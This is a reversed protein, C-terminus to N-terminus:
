NNGLDNPEIPAAAGRSWKSGSKVCKGAFHNRSLLMGAAAVLRPVLKRQRAIPQEVFRWGAWGMPLTLAVVLAAYEAALLMPNPNDYGFVVVAVPIALPHYLYFSYSIRGLWRAGPRALIRHLISPRGYAVGAVLWAAAVGEGLMAWHSEYGFICRSILLIVIAITNAAPTFWRALSRSEAALMGLFFMFAFGQFGRFLCIVGVAAFALLARPGFRTWAAYALFVYAIAEIEVKLTWSGGNVNPALLLANTVFDGWSPVPWTSPLVGTAVGASLVICMVILNILLAPYIRALRAAVFDGAKLALGADGRRLSLMLVFGSLVFFLSVAATGNFLVTLLRLELRAAGHIDWIARDHIQEGGIRVLTAAHFIAVSLAAIGRLSELGPFFSKESPM